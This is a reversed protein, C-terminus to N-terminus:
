FTKYYQGRSEKYKVKKREKEARRREKQDVL